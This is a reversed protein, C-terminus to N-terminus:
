GSAATSTTHSPTEAEVAGCIAAWTAASTAPRDILAASPPVVAGPRCGIRTTASASASAACATAPTGHSLPGSRSAGDHVITAAKHSPTSM